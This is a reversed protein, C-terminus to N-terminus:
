TFFFAYILLIALPGLFAVIFWSVARDKRKSVAESYASFELLPIRHKPCLGQSESFFDCKPCLYEGKAFQPDFSREVVSAGMKELDAKVILLDSQQIEVYILDPLPAYSPHESPQRQRNAERFKEIEDPASLVRLDSGQAQLKQRLVDIFHLPFPGFIMNSYYTVRSLM